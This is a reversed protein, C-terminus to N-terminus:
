DWDLLNDNIIREVMDDNSGYTLRMDDAFDHAKEILRRKDESSKANSIKRCLKDARESLRYYAPSGNELGM